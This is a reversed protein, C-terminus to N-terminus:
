IHCKLNEYIEVEIKKATKESDENNIIVQKKSFKFAKYMISTEDNYMKNVEKFFETNKTETSRFEETSSRSTRRSEIIKDSQMLLFLIDLKELRNLVRFYKKELKMWTKAQEGTFNGVQIHVRSFIFDDTSHRDMLGISHKNLERFQQIRKKFFEQQMRFANNKMDDMYGDFEDTIFGKREDFKKINNKVLFDEMNRIVTTKGVAGPGIIAVRTTKMNKSIVIIFIDMILFFINMIIISVDVMGVGAFFIMALVNKLIWGYWTWKIGLVMMILVVVSISNVLTDIIRSVWYYNFNVGYEASTQNIVNSWWKNMIPTLFYFSIFAVIFVVVLMLSIDWSLRYQTIGNGKVQRIIMIVFIPVFWFLNVIFDGTLNISLAFLGFILANAIAWTIAIKELKYFLLSAIIGTFAALGSLTGLVKQVSGGHQWVWSSDTVNYLSFFILIPSVVLIFIQEYINFKKM